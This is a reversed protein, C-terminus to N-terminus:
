RPRARRLLERLTVRARNVPEAIEYTWYAGRQILRFKAGRAGRPPRYGTPAYRQFDAHMRGFFWRRDGRPVLGPRGIPGVGAGGTQLVSAYHWIAREFVAKKVAATAVPHGAQDLEALHRLVDRYSDFVALHGSDSSAMFSGTRSRRYSYCVRDLVALRGTFLAACTVPIDEHIGQRFLEGLDALFERRFLKSWATMTLDIMAPDDALTFIGHPAAALLAAGPSRGTSADPYLEQYDILLVDPESTAASAAPEAHLITTTPPHARTGQGTVQGGARLTNLERAIAALAGDTILDDGDVFWVYRGTAAALGTNRANGPGGSVPLHIVTLRSDSSAREDLLSGCGDPSADDVAIVEVRPSGAPDAQGLISDLCAGLYGRVGYVPLVVTILPASNM